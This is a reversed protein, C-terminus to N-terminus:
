ITSGPLNEITVEFPHTGGAGEPSLWLNVHVTYGRMVRVPGEVWVGFNNFAQAVQAALLCALGVAVPTPRMCRRPAGRTGGEGGPLYRSRRNGGHRVTAKRCGVARQPGALAFPLRCLM